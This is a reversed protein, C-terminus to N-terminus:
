FNENRIQEIIEIAKSLTENEVPKEEILSFLKNFQVALENVFEVYRSYFDWDEVYKANYFLALAFIPQLGIKIGLNLYDKNIESVMIEKGEVADLTKKLIRAHLKHSIYVVIPLLSKDVYIITPRKILKIDDIEKLEKEVYQIKIKRKLFKKLVREFKRETFKGSLISKSLSYSRELIKILNSPEREKLIKKLDYVDGINLFSNIPLLSISVYSGLFLSYEM